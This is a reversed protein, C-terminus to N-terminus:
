ALKTMVPEFFGDWLTNMILRLMALRAHWLGQNVTMKKTATVFTDFEAFKDKDSAISPNNEL